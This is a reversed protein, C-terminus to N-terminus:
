YVQPHQVLVVREWRISQAATARVATSSGAIRQGFNDQGYNSCQSLFSPYSLPYQQQQQQAQHQQERACGNCGQLTVAATLKKM